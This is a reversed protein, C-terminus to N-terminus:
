FESTYAYRAGKKKPKQNYAIRVEDIDGDEIKEMINYALDRFIKSQMGLQECVWKFSMIDHEGCPEDDVLWAFAAQRYKKTNLDLLARKVVDALLAKEPEDPTSLFDYDISAKSSLLRAHCVNGTHEENPAAQNTGDEEM